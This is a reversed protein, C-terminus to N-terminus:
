VATPLEVLGKGPPAGYSLPRVSVCSIPCQNPRRCIQPSEFQPLSKQASVGSAEPEWKPQGEEVVHSPIGSM